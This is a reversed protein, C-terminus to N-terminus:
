PESHAYRSQSREGQMLLYILPAFSGFLATAILHIFFWHIPKNRSKLDFYVWINVLSLAIVLDSFIQTTNTDTFPPFFGSYGTDLFSFFTLGSHALLVTFIALRFM